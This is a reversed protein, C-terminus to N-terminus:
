AGARNSTLRGHRMGAVEDMAKQERRGEDVKWEELRRDRLKDLMRRQKMADVYIKVREVVGEDAEQCAADAKKLHDEMRNLVFEMNRIQGVSGGMNHAKALKARGRAQVEELDLRAQHAAEAERRAQALSRAEEQEVHRRFELIKSLSFGFPTM